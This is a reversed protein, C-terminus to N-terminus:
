KSATLTSVVPIRRAEEVKRPHALASDFVYTQGLEAIRLSHVIQQNNRTGILLASAEGEGAGDRVTAAELAVVRRTKVDRIALVSEAGPVFALQYVGPALVTKGWHAEFPLTFKGQYEAQPLNSQANALGGFCGVALLVAAFAVLRNTNRITKM